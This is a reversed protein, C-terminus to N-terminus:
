TGIVVNTITNFSNLIVSYQPPPQIQKSNTNILIINIILHM